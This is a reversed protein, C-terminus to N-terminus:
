FQRIPDRLFFRRARRRTAGRAINGIGLDETKALFQLANALLRQSGAALAIVPGLRTEGAFRRPNCFCEALGFAQRNESLVVSLVVRLVWFAAILM